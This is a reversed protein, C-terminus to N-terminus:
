KNEGLIDKKKRKRQFYICLCFNLVSSITSDCCLSIRNREQDCTHKGWHDINKHKSKGVSLSLIIIAKGVMWGSINRKVAWVAFFWTAKM